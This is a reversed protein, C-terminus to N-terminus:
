FADGITLHIAGPAGLLTSDDPRTGASGDARQLARVRLGTDLRIAGLLTYFRLGWGATFNLHAFRWVAEDNVDGVDAFGAVVFSKGLAIRLETSAEWRRVGGVLGVGLQGALFGRNSNAGGGRLRYANPGLRESTDDLDPNANTIFLGAIAFRSAWVIDWFLPLYTRVEPAVRYATWDSAKWRPAQTANLGLYAGLSPRVPDDRLDLRLDEEVFSYGYTSPLESGDSTLNHESAGVLFFDQQLALTAVLARTFFGRRAGIRFLIDSRDFGLYPDPGLDWANESFLDTRKELVGPQNLKVSLLNGFGPPTARPFEASFIMRPRDELALRGLTGLLHRREYRGFLHLDWQPISALEGTSTRQQAGSLVGVGLRLAHPARPSVELRVNVEHSEEDLEEHVQVSTFAGLAYVEAQTERLTKPNFREGSPLAAAALIPEAPLNGNGELTLTGFRYVPGPVVQYEVRAQRSATDVDVRGEVAPAAHGAQRLREKMRKKANEYDTEDIPTGLELAGLDRLKQQLKPPLEELGVFSVREILTPEGEDITVQIRVPCVEAELDCPPEATPDSAEPPDFEIQVIRADYYGRAQYFRVIRALDEDFVARNFAPWDTWWWRWLNLRPSQSDFPAQACSPDGMGVTLGFSPRERSILCALAPREALDAQGQLKLREIQYRGAEHHACGGLLLPVIGPLFRWRM